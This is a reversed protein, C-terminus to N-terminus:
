MESVFRRNTLWLFHIFLMQCRVSGKPTNSAINNMCKRQNVFRLNTLLIDSAQDLVFDPFIQLKIVHCRVCVFRYIKKSKSRMVDSM